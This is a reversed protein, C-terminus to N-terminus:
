ICSLTEQDAFFFTFHYMLDITFEFKRCGNALNITVQSLYIYFERSARHRPFCSIGKCNFTQIILKGRLKM